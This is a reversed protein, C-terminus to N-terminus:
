RGGPTGFQYFGVGGPARTVINTHVDRKELVHDIIKMVELTSSGNIVITTGMGNGNGNGGGGAAPAYGGTPRLGHALTSALTESAAGLRSASSLMGHIINDVLHVGWVDTDALPGYDATSQHLPGGIIAAVGDVIKKLDALKSTIGKGINTILDEGWGLADDKLGGAWDLINDKIQGLANLADTVLQGPNHTAFWQILDLVTPLVTGLFNFAGGLEVIFGILMLWPISMLALGIQKLTEKEEPSFSKKFGDFAKGLDDVAKQVYPSFMASVTSWGEGIEKLAGGIIQGAQQWGTLHQPPEEEILPMNTPITEGHPGEIPPGSGKAPIGKPVGYGMGQQAHANATLKAPAPAPNLFDFLGSQGVGSMFQGVWDAATKFAGGLTNAILDSFRSIQDQHTDIWSSLDNLTQKLNGFLKDGTSLEFNQIRDIFSSWEGWFTSHAVDKAAGSLHNAKAYAELAPLLTNPDNIHIGTGTGTANLGYQILDEPNIKLDYKLMRTYGMSASMIVNAVQALNANPDRTAALDAITPMYHELGQASLGTPALATIANLLDQRTYPIQMSFSKTWDAMQQAIAAGQPNNGGGFLYQWAFQNKETQINLQILADTFGQVEQIVDNLVSFSVLGAVMAGAQEVFGMMPSIVGGIADGLAGFMGSLGGGMGMSAMAGGLWSGFGGGSAGGMTAAMYENSEAVMKTQAALYELRAGYDAASSSAALWADASQATSAGMVEALDSLTKMRQGTMEMQESALKLSAIWAEGSTSIQAGTRQATAGTTEMIRATNNLQANAADLADVLGVSTGNINVTVSNEGGGGPFM